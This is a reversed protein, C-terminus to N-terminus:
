FFTIQKTHETIRKKMIEFYDKDKEICIYKRNTDICAIATTGSGAFPDLILDNENTFDLLIMKFLESPKQTPHETKIDNSDKIFGHNIVIYKKSMKKVFSTWAFETDCYPVKPLNGRKDWVIYCQSSYFNEWYYNAGFVIQNKSIRFIENFYNTTILKDDWKKHNSKRTINTNIGYNNNKKNIKIGYPPDTIICDISQDEIEKMVDLCDGHIIKNEM